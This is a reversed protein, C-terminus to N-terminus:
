EGVAWVGEVEFAPICVRVEEGDDKRVRRGRRRWAGGVVVRVGTAGWLRSGAGAQGWRRGRGLGGSVQGCAAEGDGGVRMGACPEGALRDSKQKYCGGGVCM